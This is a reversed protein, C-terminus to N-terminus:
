GIHEDAIDNEVFALIQQQDIFNGYALALKVYAAEISMNWLMQAGHELLTLTSQYADPSHIAPALYIAVGEEKCHKIFEILSHQEGWQLSACATGSHYLDHLVAGTQSLNFHRYDLGPYPKIMLIQDSFNPKVAATNLGNLNAAQRSRLRIPTIKEFTGQEFQMASNGQVSFFDGSLQLSCTLRTGKHVQMAQQPNRYPVYVGTAIQQRIFEVACIFNELGNAREDDLPYNSSVLLIPLKLAHFYFSVAAASYALTDTGHTIIIGDYQSPDAKEIAIIITTWATPALNESLIQLPQLTDFHLQQHEPYHQEFLHLLKFPANGSTDITGESVTSGITGGTFVLLIKM